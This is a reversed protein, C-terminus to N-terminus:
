GHRDVQLRLDPVDRVEGLLSDDELVDHREEGVRLAARVTSCSASNASGRFGSRM